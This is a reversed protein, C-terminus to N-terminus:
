SAACATPAAFSHAAARSLVRQFGMTPTPTRRRMEPLSEVHEDLHADLAKKLSKIDAGCHRLTEATDTDHLLAFLLHELTVLEHGRNAAENIAVSISIQLDPSLKM